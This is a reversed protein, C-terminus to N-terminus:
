ARIDLRGNGLTATYVTTDGGDDDGDGGFGRRGAGKGRGGGRGDSSFPNGEGRLSFNLSNSDTQLGADQLARELGRSDRQLLELTQAKEVAVIANVRGDPAIDLKIDIRGLEAPHLNITFQDVEDAAHKKIHVAIQDNVGMPMGASGRSPRLMAAAQPQDLAAPGGHGGEMAALAPHNHPGAAGTGGAVPGTADVAELAGATAKGTAPSVEAPPVLTPAVPQPMPAAQNQAQPQADNRSGGDATQRGNAKTEGSKAKAAALLDAFRDPLPTDEDTPLAETGAGDAQPALQSADQLATAADGNKEGSRATARADGLAAEAGAAGAGAAQAAQQAGATQAAADVATAAVPGDAAAGDGDQGNDGGAAGGASTLSALILGSAPLIPQAVTQAQAAVDQGALLMPDASAADDQSAEDGGSGEMAEDSATADVAAGDVATGGGVPQDASAAAEGTQRAPTTGGGAAAADAKATGKNSKADAAKDAPRKDTRNTKNGDQKDQVSREHRAPPQRDDAKEARGAASASAADDRESKRNADEIRNRQPDVRPEPRVPAKRQSEAARAEKAERGSDRAEAAAQERKRAAADALMRDMMKSFMDNQAATGHTQQPQAMGDFLSAAISNSQIAM